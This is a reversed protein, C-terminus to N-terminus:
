QRPSILFPLSELHLCPPSMQAFNIGKKKQLHLKVNLFCHPWGWRGLVTFPGRWSFRHLVTWWWPVHHYDNTIKVKKEDLCSFGTLWLIHLSSLLPLARTQKTRPSKYCSLRQSNVLMVRQALLDVETHAKSCDLLEKKYYKKENM